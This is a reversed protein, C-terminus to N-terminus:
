IANKVGYKCFLINIYLRTRERLLSLILGRFANTKITNIEPCKVINCRNGAWVPVATMETCNKINIM